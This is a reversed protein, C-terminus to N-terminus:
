GKTLSLGDTLGPRRGRAAWARCQRLGTKTTPSPPAEMYPELGEEPDRM